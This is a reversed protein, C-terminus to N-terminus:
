AAAASSPGDALGLLHAARALEAKNGVTLKKRIRQVYTDVTAKSLCLERAIQKHTLGTAVHRLVDEERPTLAEPFRSRAAGALRASGPGATLVHQAVSAPLYFGGCAVARVATAVMEAPCDWSVYGRAGIRILDQVRDPALATSFALTPFKQAVRKAMGSDGEMLNRHTDFMTVIPLDRSNVLAAEMAVLNSYSEVRFSEPHQRLVGAVGQLAMLDDTAIAIRIM